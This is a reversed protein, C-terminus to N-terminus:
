QNYRFLNNNLEIRRPKKKKIVLQRVKLFFEDVQSLENYFKAALDAAGSSKYTQLIVLFKRILEKGEKNLNEKNLHIFFEDSEEKLEFKVIDSKQNKYLYMSLVYAGQTHAQGWKKTEANFLSLGLLGKRFQSMVNVWLLTDIESSDFGFLTYVEPLQCLFYGCTDARCEEFSASIAGFRSNWTDGEEYCSEFEQNTYHDFFTSAKGEADRYILKGTGHGLLEHCAVHVEYCRTMNESLLKGQEVTAFEVTSSTYSGMSNNLYVNKFGENERIDDYNPINIGLPCSNSAMCIVDLTTFDPALFSDKEMRREWPLLPIIHESNTVLQKFKKSLDKDVIAVLGEFYARTNEPDIYTEIWGMNTEVVPGQDAIWKRQSDKHTEISGTNYHEIYLRVMDRQNDNAAYQVVRELYYNM